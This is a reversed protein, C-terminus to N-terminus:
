LKYPWKWVTNKIAVVAFSDFIECSQAKTKTMQTPMFEFMTKLNSQIWKTQTAKINFCICM